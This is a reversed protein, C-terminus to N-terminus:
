RKRDKEDCIQESVEVLEGCLKRFVHYNEVQEELRRIEETGHLRRGQTKGKKKCTYLAYPGALVPDKQGKLKLKLFQHIVSGRRMEEIASIHGLLEQRLQRLQPL